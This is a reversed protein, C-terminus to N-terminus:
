QQLSNLINKSSFGYSVNRFEASNLRREREKDRKKGYLGQM